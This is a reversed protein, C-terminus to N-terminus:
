GRETLLKDSITFVGQMHDDQFKGKKEEYRNANEDKGIDIGGRNTQGELLRKRISRRLRDKGGGRKLVQV